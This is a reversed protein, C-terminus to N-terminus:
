RAFTKVSGCSTKRPILLYLVHFYELARLILKECRHTSLTWPKIWFVKFNALPWKEGYDNLHMVWTSDYLEVRNLTSFTSLFYSNPFSFSFDTLMLHVLKASLVDPQQNEKPNRRWPTASQEMTQSSGLAKDEAHCVPECPPVVASCFAIHRRYPFAASFRASRLWSIPCFLTLITCTLCLELFPGKLPWRQTHASLCTHAARQAQILYFRKNTGCNIYGREAHRTHSVDIFIEKGEYVRWLRYSSYTSGRTFHLGRANQWGTHRYTRLLKWFLCRIRWLVVEVSKENLHVSVTNEPLWSCLNQIYPLNVRLRSIDYVYPDSM